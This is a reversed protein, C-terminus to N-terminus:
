ASNSGLHITQVVFRRFSLLKGALLFYMFIFSLVLIQTNCNVSTKVSPGHRENLLM